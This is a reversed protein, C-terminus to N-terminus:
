RERDKIERIKKLHHVDELDRPRGVAQKLAILDDMSILSLKADGIQMDRRRGYAEDFAVPNSLFVDVQRYPKEKHVFTFVVAGKEKVWRERKEKSVLDLPEVPARPLYGLKEMGSIVRSLNEESLDVMIDLDVTMRVYGYINTAIGGVVLYRVGKSSFERFVEEYIM